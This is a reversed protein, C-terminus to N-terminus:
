ERVRGVTRHTANKHQHREQRAHMCESRTRRHAHAHTHTHSHTLEQVYVGKQTIAHTPTTSVNAHPHTQTNPFCCSPPRMPFFPFFPLGEPGEVSRDRNSSSRCFNRRSATRHGVSHQTHEHAAAIGIEAHVIHAHTHTHTRPHCIMIYGHIPIRDAHAHAM